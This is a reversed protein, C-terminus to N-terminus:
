HPPLPWGQGWLATKEEGALLVLSLLAWIEGQEFFQASQQLYSLSSEECRPKPIQGRHSFFATFQRAEVHCRHHTTM